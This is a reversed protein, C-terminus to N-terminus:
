VGTFTYILRCRVMHSPANQTLDLSVDHSLPYWHISCWRHSDSRDPCLILAVIIPKSWVTCSMQHTLMIETIRQYHIQMSSLDISGNHSSDVYCFLGKLPLLLVPITMANWRVTAMRAGRLMVQRLDFLDYQLAQVDGLPEPLCILRFKCSRRYAIM